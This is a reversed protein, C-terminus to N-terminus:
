KLCQKKREMICNYMILPAAWLAAKCLTNFKLKFQNRCLAPALAKVNKCCNAISVLIFKIRFCM